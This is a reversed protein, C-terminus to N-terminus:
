ARVPTLRHDYCWIVFDKLYVDPAYDRPGVRAKSLFVRKLPASTEPDVVTFEAGDQRFHMKEPNLMLGDHLM